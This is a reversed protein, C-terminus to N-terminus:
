DESGCGSCGQDVSYVLAPGAFSRLVHWSKSHPSELSHVVVVAASDHRSSRATSKCGGPGERVRSQPASMGMSDRCRDEDLIELLESRAPRRPGGAGRDVARDFRLGGFPRKSGSLWFTVDGGEEERSVGM